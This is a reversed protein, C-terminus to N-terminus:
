EQEPADFELLEDAVEVDIAPDYTITEDVRLDRV